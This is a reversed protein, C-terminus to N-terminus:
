QLRFGFDEYEPKDPIRFSFRRDDGPGLPGRRLLDQLITSHVAGLATKTDLALHAEQLVRDGTNRLRGEVKLVGPVREDTGPKLEPGVRFGEVVVSSELYARRDAETMVEVAADQTIRDRNARAAEGLDYYIFLALGLSAIAGVGFVPLIWKGSVEAVRPVTQHREGNTM